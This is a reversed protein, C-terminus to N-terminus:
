LIGQSPRDQRTFHSSHMKIKPEAVTRINVETIINQIEHPCFEELLSYLDQISKRVSHIFVAGNDTLSGDENYLHQRGPIVNNM